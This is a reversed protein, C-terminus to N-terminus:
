MGGDSVFVFINFMRIMFWVIKRLIDLIMLFGGVFNWGISRFRGSGVLLDSVTVELWFDKTWCNKWFIICYYMIM